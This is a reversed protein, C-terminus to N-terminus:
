ILNSLDIFLGVYHEQSHNSDIIEGSEHIWLKTSVGQKDMFEMVFKSNQSRWIIKHHLSVFGLCKFQPTRKSHQKFLDLQLPDSPLQFTPMEMYHTPFGEDTFWSDLDNDWKASYFVGNLYYGERVGTPCIDSWQWDPHYALVIVSEPMTKYDFVKWM